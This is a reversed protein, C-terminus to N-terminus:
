ITHGINKYNDKSRKHSYPSNDSKLGDILITILDLQSYVTLTEPKNINEM